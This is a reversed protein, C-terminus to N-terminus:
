RRDPDASPEPGIDYAVAIGHYVEPAHYDKRLPHGPWDEPLLLRRLDPHGAFRIGLLDYTEREHWDAARWIGAVSPVVAHTAPDAQDNPAVERGCRVKVVLRHRQLLSQLHVVVDFGAAGLDVGALSELYDFQLEPTHLLAHAVAAWQQPAIRVWPQPADPQAELVAEPWHAQLHAIIAAAEMPRLYQRPSYSSVPM